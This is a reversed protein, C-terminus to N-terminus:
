DNLGQGQLLMRMTRFLIHWDYRWLNWPSLGRCADLYELDLGESRSLTGTSSTKNLQALGTWGARVANRYTLGRLGQEEVMAVPWPRPGVLSMEGRVINVLQPIEDLYFPKLLRRGAWTLNEIHREYLRIHEDGEERMRELAARRLVRFKLIGIERGRSVRRERYLWPGRDAPVLLMDLAMAALVLLLVPSLLVGVTLPVAKDTLLKPLPYPVPADAM